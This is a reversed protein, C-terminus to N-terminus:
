GQRQAELQAKLEEIQKSQNRIIDVYNEEFYERERREKEAAETRKRQEAAIVTENKAATEHRAECVDVLERMEHAIKDAVDWGRAAELHTICEKAEREMNRWHDFQASHSRERANKLQEDSMEAAQEGTIEKIVVQVPPEFISASFGIEVAKSLVGLCKSADFIAGIGGRTNRFYPTSVEDKLRKEIEQASKKGADPQKPAVGKGFLM